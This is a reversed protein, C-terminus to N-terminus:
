KIGLKENKELLKIAEELRRQRTEERKASDIWGVYNRKYSFALKNFNDWAQINSKLADKIYSPIISEKKFSRKEEKKLDDLALGKITGFGAKTMKGEEILKKVRKKNLDSWVSNQKRPSFKQTYKEEDIRKIISDIWGFCLAEEVADDYPIRPKGTHKKYYVLWIEKETNHNKELWKRWKERTTIYLTKTIEVM